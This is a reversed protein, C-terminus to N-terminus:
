SRRSISYRIRNTVLGTRHHIQQCSRTERARWTRVLPSAGLQRRRSICWGRTQKQKTEDPRGATNWPRGSRKRGALELYLALSLSPSPPPLELGAAMVNSYRDPVNSGATLTVVTRKFPLDYFPKSICLLTNEDLLQFNAMSLLLCFQEKWRRCM